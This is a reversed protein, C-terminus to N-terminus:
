AFAPATGEVLEVLAARIDDVPREELVVLRVQVLDDGQQAFVEYLGIGEENVVVCGDSIGPAELWSTSALYGDKSSAADCAEDAAVDPRPGATINGADGAWECRELREEARAPDDWDLTSLVEDSIVSACDVPREPPASAGSAVDESDVLMVTALVGVLCGAAAAVGAVLPTRM